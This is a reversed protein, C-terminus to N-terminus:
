LLVNLLFLLVGLLVLPMWSLLYNFQPASFVVPPGGMLGGRCLLQFVLASEGSVRGVTRGGGGACWARTVRPCCPLKRGHPRVPVGCDPLGPPRCCACPGRHARCPGPSGPGCSLPGEGHLEWQARHGSARQPGGTSARGSRWAPRGRMGLGAVALGLSPHGRQGASALGPGGAAGSVEGEAHPAQSGLCLQSPDPSGPSM